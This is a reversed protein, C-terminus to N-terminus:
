KRINIFKKILSRLLKKIKLKKKAPYKDIDKEVINLENRILVIKTKINDEISLEQDLDLKDLEEQTIYKEKEM